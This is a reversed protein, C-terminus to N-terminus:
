ENKVGLRSKWFDLVTIGLSKLVSRSSITALHASKILGKREGATLLTVIEDLEEFTPFVLHLIFSHGNEANSQAAPADPLESADFYKVNSRPAGVHFETYDIKKEPELGPLSLQSQLAM